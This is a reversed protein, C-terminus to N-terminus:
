KFLDRLFKFWHFYHFVHALGFLVILGAVYVLAIPDNPHTAAWVAGYLALALVALVVVLTIVFRVFRNRLFLALLSEPIAEESSSPLTMADTANKRDSTGGQLRGLLREIMYIVGVFALIVVVALFTDLM